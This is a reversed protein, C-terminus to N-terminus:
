NVDNKNRRQNKTVSKGHTPNLNKCVMGRHKSLMQRFYASKWAKDGRLALRKRKDISHAM